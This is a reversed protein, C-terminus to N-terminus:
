IKQNNELISEMSVWFTKAIKYIIFVSPEKIVWLELKTYTTYSIDAKRAFEDQTLKYEKRLQKINKWIFNKQIKEM